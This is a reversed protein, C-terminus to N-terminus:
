AGTRSPYTELLRDMSHSPGFYHVYMARTRVDAMSKTTMMRSKAKMTMTMTLCRLTQIVTLSMKGGEVDEIQGEVLIFRMMMRRRIVVTLVRVLSLSLSLSLSLDVYMMMWQSGLLVVAVLQLLLIVVVTCPVRRPMLLTWILRPCLVVELKKSRSNRSGLKMNKPVCLSLGVTPYQLNIM